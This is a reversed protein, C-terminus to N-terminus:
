VVIHVAARVYWDVDGRVVGVVRRAQVGRVEVVGERGVPACEVASVAAM